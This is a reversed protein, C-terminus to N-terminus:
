EKKGQEREKLMQKLEKLMEKLERNSEKIEKLEMEVKTLREMLENNPVFPTFGEAQQAYTSSAEAAVAWHTKGDADRMGVADIENWDPVNKSDIYLKIRNTKFDLKVPIVSVGKPEDQPTPDVGKWVEVETGDLRFATVRNVAGPAYNEYIHITKPMLPEAYELLLWEDQGDASLSAWANVNDGGELADPEGTAQEPGWNRKAKTVTTLDRWIYWYPYVYVWYGKPLETQGAYERVDRQGVDSFDKYQEADKEVKFQRLLMAYKGNVRAKKLAADLPLPAPMLDKQALSWGALTTTVAFGGLIIWARSCRTM